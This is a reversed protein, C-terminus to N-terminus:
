FIEKFNEGKQTVHVNLKLNFFKTKKIFFTATDFIITKLSHSVCMLNM